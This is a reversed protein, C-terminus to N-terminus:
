ILDTYYIIISVIIFALIWITRDSVYDDTFDPVHDDTFDPNIELRNEDEKLDQRELKVEEFETM